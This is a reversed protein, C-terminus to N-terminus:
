ILKAGSPKDNSNHAAAYKESLALRSATIACMKHAFFETKKM